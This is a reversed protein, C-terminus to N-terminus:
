YQFRSVGKKRRSVGWAQKYESLDSVEYNHTMLPRDIILETLVPLYPLEIDSDVITVSDLREWQFEEWYEEGTAVPFSAVRDLVMTRITEVNYLYVNARTQSSIISLKELEPCDFIIRHGHFYYDELTLEVLKPHRISPINSLRGNDRLTLTELEPFSRALDYRGNHLKSVEQKPITEIVLTKVRAPEDPSSYIVNDIQVLNLVNLDSPVAIIRTPNEQMSEAYHADSKIIRRTRYSESDIRGKVAGVVAIRVADSVMGGNITLENLSEPLIAQPRDGEPLTDLYIHDATSSRLDLVGRYGNVLLFKLSVPFEWDIINERSSVKILHLTELGESIIVQGALSIRTLSLTKVHEPLRPFRIVEIDSARHALIDVEEVTEPIDLLEDLERTREISLTRGGNLLPMLIQM